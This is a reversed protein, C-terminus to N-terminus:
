PNSIPPVLIANATYSPAQIETVLLAHASGAIIVFPQLLQDALPDLRRIRAEPHFPGDADPKRPDEIAEVPAYHRGVQGGDMAAMQPRIQGFQQASRDLDVIVGVAEEPRFHM